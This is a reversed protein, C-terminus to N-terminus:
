HGDTDAGKMCQELKVRARILTGAISGIPIGTRRAIEEYKHDELRAQLVENEKESLCSQRCKRLKDAEDAAEVHDTDSRRDPARTLDDSLKVIKQSGRSRVRFLDRMANITVTKAWRSSFEDLKKSSRWISMRVDQLVDAIDNADPLSRALLPRLKSNIWKDFTEQAEEDGDAAKKFLATLESDNM